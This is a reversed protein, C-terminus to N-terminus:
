SAKENECLRCAGAQPITARPSAPDEEEMLGIWVERVPLSVRKDRFGMWNVIYGNFGSQSVVSMCKNPSFFTSLHAPPKRSTLSVAGEQILPLPFFLFLSSAVPRFSPM